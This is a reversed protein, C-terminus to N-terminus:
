WQIQQIVLQIQVVVQKGALDRRLMRRTAIITHWLPSHSPQIYQVIRHAAHLHTGNAGRVLMRQAAIKSAAACAPSTTANHVPTFNIRPHLLNCELEPSQQPFNYRVPINYGLMHPTAGANPKM